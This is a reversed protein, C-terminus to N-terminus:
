NLSIILTYKEVNGRKLIYNYLYELVNYRYHLNNDIIKRCKINTNKALKELIKENKIM